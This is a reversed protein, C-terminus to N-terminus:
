GEKLFYDLEKVEFTKRYVSNFIRTTVELLTKNITGM